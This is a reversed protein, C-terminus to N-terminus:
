AVVGGRGLMEAGVPGASGCGSREATTSVGCLMKRGTQKRAVPPALSCTGKWETVATDLRGHGTTSSGSSPVPWLHPGTSPACHPKTLLIRLAERGPDAGPCWPPSEWPGCWGLCSPGACLLAVHGTPPKCAALNCCDHLKRNDGPSAQGM